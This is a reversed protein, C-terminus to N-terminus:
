QTRFGGSFLPHASGLVLVSSDVVNLVCVRNQEFTNVHESATVRKGETGFTTESHILHSAIDLFLYRGERVLEHSWVNLESNPTSGYLINIKRARRKGSQAYDVNASNARM